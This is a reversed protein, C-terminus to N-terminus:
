RKCRDVRGTARRGSGSNNSATCMTDSLSSRGPWDATVAFAAAAALKDLCRVPTVPQGLGPHPLFTMFRMLYMAAMCQDISL